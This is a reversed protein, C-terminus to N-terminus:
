WNDNINPFSFEASMPAEIFPTQRIPMDTYRHNNYTHPQIRTAVPVRNIPRSPATFPNGITKVPMDAITPMGMFFNGTTVNPIIPASYPNGITKVPMGAIIPMGMFFNGTPVNPIIPTSYPGYSKKVLRSSCNKKVAKNIFKEEDKRPFEEDFDKTYQQKTKRLLDTSELIFDPDKSPKDESNIKKNNPFLCYFEDYFEIFFEPTISHDQSSSHNCIKEGFIIKILDKGDYSIIYSRPNLKNITEDTYCFHDKISLNSALIRNSDLAALLSTINKKQIAITSKKVHIKDELIRLGENLYNKISNISKTVSPNTITSNNLFIPQNNQIPYM